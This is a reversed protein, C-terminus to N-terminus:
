ARPYLQRIPGANVVRSAAGIGLMDEAWSSMIDFLADPERHGGHRMKDVLEDFKAGVGDLQIGMAAELARIMAMNLMPSQAKVDLVWGYQGENRKRELSAAFLAIPGRIAKDRVQGEVFPFGVYGIQEGAEEEERQLNRALVKLHGGASVYKKHRAGHLGGTQSGVHASSVLEQELSDPLMAIARPQMSACQEAVRAMTGEVLEECAYIDFMSARAIRALCTSASNGSKKILKDLCRAYKGELSQRWADKPPTGSAGDHADPGDM